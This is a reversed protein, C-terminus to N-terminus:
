KATETPYDRKRLDASSSYKDYPIQGIYKEQNWTPHNLNSVGWPVVQFWIWWNKEINGMLIALRTIVTSSVSCRTKHLMSMYQRTIGLARAMEADNKWGKAQKIIEVAGKKFILRYELNPNPLHSKSRKSIKQLIASLM